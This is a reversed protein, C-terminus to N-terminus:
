ACASICLREVLGPFIEQEALEVIDQRSATDAHNVLVGFLPVAIDLSDTTPDQLVRKLNQVGALPMQVHHVQQRILLAWTNNIRRRAVRCRGQRLQRRIPLLPEIHVALRAALRAM